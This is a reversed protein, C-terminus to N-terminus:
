TQRITEEVAVAHFVARGGGGGVGGGGVGGGGGGGGGVGGGGV